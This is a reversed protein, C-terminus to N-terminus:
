STITKGIKKDFYDMVNVTQINNVNKESFMEQLCNLISANNLRKSEFIEKVDHKQSKKMQRYTPFVLSLNASYSKWDESEYIKAKLRSIRIKEKEKKVIYDFYQSKILEKAEKFSVLLPIPSSSMQCVYISKQNLVESFSMSVDDRNVNQLHNSFRIKFKEFTYYTTSAKDLRKFNHNLEQFFKDLTRNVIKIPM